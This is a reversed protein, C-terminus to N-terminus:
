RRCRDTAMAITISNSLMSVILCATSIPAPMLMRGSGVTRSAQLLPVSTATRSIAGSSRRGDADNVALPLDERGRGGLEHLQELLHLDLPPSAPLLRRITSDAPTPRTSRDRCGRGDALALRDVHQRPGPQHLRRRLRAKAPPARRHRLCTRCTGRAPRRWAGALGNGYLGARRRSSSGRRSAAPRGSRPPLASPPPPGAPTAPRAGPVLDEDARRRPCDARGAAVAAIGDNALAVDLQGGGARPSSSGSRTRAPFPRRGAPPRDPIAGRAQGAPQRSVPNRPVATSGVAPQQVELRAIRSHRHRRAHRHVEAGGRQHGRQQVQGVPRSTATAERNFGCVRKPSSTSERIRWARVSGSPSASSCCATAAAMSSIIPSSHRRPRCRRPLADVLDGNAPLVVICCSSQPM